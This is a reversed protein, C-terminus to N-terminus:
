VLSQMSSMQSIIRSWLARSRMETRHAVLSDLAVGYHEVFSHVSVIHAYIEGHYSTFDSARRYWTASEGFRKAVRYRDGTLAFLLGISHSQFPSSIGEIETCDHFPKTIALVDDGTCRGSQVLRDAAIFVNRIELKSYKMKGLM